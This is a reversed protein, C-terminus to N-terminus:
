KTEIPTSLTWTKSAPDLLVVGDEHTGQSGFPGRERKILTSSGNIVDSKQYLDLEAYFQLIGVLPNSQSVTIQFRTDSDPKSVYSGGQSKHDQYKIYFVEPSALSPIGSAATDGHPEDQLPSSVFKDQLAEDDLKNGRSSADCDVYRLAEQFRAHGRELLLRVEEISDTLTKIEEQVESLISLANEKNEDLLLLSLLSKLESLAKLQERIQESREM